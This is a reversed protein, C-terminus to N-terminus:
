LPFEYSSVAPALQDMHVYKYKSTPNGTLQTLSLALSNNVTTYNGRNFGLRCM